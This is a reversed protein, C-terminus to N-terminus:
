FHWSISASLWRGPRPYFLLDEAETDLLNEAAITLKRGGKLNKTCKYNICAFGAIRAPVYTNWPKGVYIPHDVDTRRPGYVLVELTHEGSRDDRVSVGAKATHKPFATRFAAVLPRDQIEDVADLYAYNAWSSGRRWSQQWELEIGQLRAEGINHYVNNEDAVVINELNSHFVSLALTSSLFAWTVDGQYTWGLEPELAPNGVWMGQGYLEILEPFRRNRAVALRLRTTPSLARHWSCFPSVISEGPDEEDYRGGVTFISHLASSFTHQAFVCRARKEHEQWKDGPISDWFSIKLPGAFSYSDKQWAAGWTWICGPTPRIDQQLEARLLEYDWVMFRPEVHDKCWQQWLQTGTFRYPAVRLTLDSKESLEREYTISAKPQSVDTWEAEWKEVPNPGTAKSGFKDGFLYCGVIKLKSRHDPSLIVKAAAHSLDMQGHPRWGELESHSVSLFHNRDSDGGGVNVNYIRQGFSGITTSLDVGPHRDGAKMSLLVLGAITTGPYKPPTPGKLIKVGEIASMPIFNLIYPRGIPNTPVGELLVQTWTSNNGRMTMLPAGAPCGSLTDAGPIRKVADPLFPANVMRDAQETTIEDVKAPWEHTGIVEVEIEAEPEEVEGKDEEDAPALPSTEEATTALAEAERAVSEGSAPRAPTVSLALSLLFGCCVLACRM